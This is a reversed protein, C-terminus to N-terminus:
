ELRQRRVSYRTQYCTTANRWRHGTWVPQRCCGSRCGYYGHPAILPNPPYDGGYYTYDGYYVPFTGLFGPGFDGAHASHSAMGLLLALAASLARIKM